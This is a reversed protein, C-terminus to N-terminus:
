ACSADSPLQEGAHRRPAFVWARYALFRLVTAVLNAAVLVSVEAPRSPAAVVAHLAALAGSTFLLGLGFVALGELQSRAAHRGGRIGFTLRRNAGTNAVATLLLATLNAGQAGIPERLLLYLLVYGLTSAVGIAAFRLVQRSLRAPVGPAPSSLPGRGFQRRLEPLPLAGTGLARLM